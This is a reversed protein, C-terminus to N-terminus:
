MEIVFVFFFVLVVGEQSLQRCPVSLLLLTLHIKEVQDNVVVSRQPGVVGTDKVQLDVADLVESFEYSHCVVSDTHTYLLM